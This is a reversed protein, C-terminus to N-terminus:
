LAEALFLRLHWHVYSGQHKTLPHGTYSHRNSKRCDSHGSQNRAEILFSSAFKLSHILENKKIDTIISTGDGGM